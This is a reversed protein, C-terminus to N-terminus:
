NANLNVHYLPTDEKQKLSKDDGTQAPTATLREKRKELFRQLSVNRQMMRRHTQHAMWQGNNSSCNSIPEETAAAKNFWGDEVFKLITEAKDQPLDYVSVTGNYFITLPAAEVSRSPVPNYVPLATPSSPVSMSKKGGLSEGDPKSDPPCLGGAMSLKLLEPNIKTIAQQVGRFSRQRDFLRRLQSKSSSASITKGRDVGLFDLEVAAPSSPM